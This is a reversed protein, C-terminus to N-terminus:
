GSSIFENYGDRGDFTAQGVHSIHLVFGKDEVHHYKGVTVSTSGTLPSILKIWVCVSVKNTYNLNNTGCDIYDDIGDFSYAHNFRGFRDTQQIVGYTVGNNGNGSEDIANGNFPWYGVLGNTPIQPFANVSLALIAITFFKKM